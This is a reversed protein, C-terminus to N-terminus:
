SWFFFFYRDHPRRNPVRSRNTRLLVQRFTVFSRQFLWTTSSGVFALSSKLFLASHGIRCLPGRMYISKSPEPPFAASARECGKNATQSQELQRYLCIDRTLRVRKECPRIATKVLTNTLVRNYDHHCRFRRTFSRRLSYGM